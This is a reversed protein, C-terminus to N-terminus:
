KRRSKAPKNFKFEVVNPEGKPISARVTRGNEQAWQYLRQLFSTPKCGFDRDKFARRPKGDALRNWDYKTRALRLSKIVQTM